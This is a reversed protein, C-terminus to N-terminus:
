RLLSKSLGTIMRGIEDLAARLSVYKEEALYALKNAILLETDVESASGQSNSLFHAFEKSSRRGAGEAINAPISVSARRLQSTLGFKEDNPFSETAQYVAVVFDISKKWVDLTEHPRM